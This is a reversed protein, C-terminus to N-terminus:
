EVRFQGFADHVLQGGASNINFWWDWNQIAATTAAGGLTIMGIAWLNMNM